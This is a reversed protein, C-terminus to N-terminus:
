GYTGRRSDEDTSREDTLAAKHASATDAATFCTPHVVTESNTSNRDATENHQQLAPM